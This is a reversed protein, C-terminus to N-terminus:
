TDSRHPLWEVSVKIEEGAKADLTYNYPKNHWTPILEDFIVEGNVILKSYDIWYPIRKSRDSPDRIDKGKLKLTLKGDVSAKAVFELRGIYSQIFYGLNGKLLWKARTVKAKNDSVSIIQFNGNEAKTELQIDLRATFYDSFKRILEINESHTKKETNLAVQLDSILTDKKASKAQIEEANASVNGTDGKHPLWEAQVIIEEGAKVDLTYRYPKDHWIPKLEDFVIEGNVTLKSYDVWYPIRKSKDEPNRVDLGKLFLTIQGDSTPKAVIEMKGNYSQIFYGNENKKLWGARKVEAKDDSVSVIQLKGEDTSRLKIDIRSTFYDSFKRILEVDESHIKKESDLAAQLDSILADKKASKEQIEKVDASVNGTDGRHPLWEAQVTIEEGAKADINYKYPKDHWAPTLKDFIVKDNVVFKTYGVWHPIRKTKDKPNYVSIGGFRFSFKGEATARAVLKLKGIHSQIIYGIGDKQFWAPKEIKAKEDSVSVIQFDGQETQLKIDLRATFLQLAVESTLYNIFECLTDFDTNAKKENAVASFLFSIATSLYDNNFKSRLIKYIDQNSLQKRAKDTRNFVAEFQKKFAAFLYEPNEALVENKEELEHLFKTFNIYEFFWYSISEQPDRSKRTVSTNYNRYFILPTPIRLLRKAHCHSNIVMVVDQATSLNPFTIKNKILFERRFFKSWSAYFTGEDGILLLRDLNKNPDDVILETKDERNEKILKKNLGDRCLSINNNPRNVYHTGEYVIDADYEKAANYLTELATLLIFDDADLFLLYQGNSLSIGINRPEGGGGSNKETHTLTLRRGFKLSYDRVIAVSNDTSRDDVVIVEFDQFTQLLLSDLCEGIFKEANYMPIIVSVAYTKRPCLYTRM